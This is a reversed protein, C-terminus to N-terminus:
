DTCAIAACPAAKPCPRIILIGKSWGRETIAQQLAAISRGSGEASVLGALCRMVAPDAHMAAFLACDSDRWQRLRLRPTVPQVPAPLSPITWDAM